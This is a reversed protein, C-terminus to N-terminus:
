KAAAAALTPFEDEFNGFAFTNGHNEIYDLVEEMENLIEDEISGRLVNEIEELFDDETEGPEMDPDLEFKEVFRQWELNALQMNVQTEESPPPPANQAEFNVYPKTTVARLWWHWTKPPEYVIQVQEGSILKQMIDQNFWESVYIYATNFYKGTTENQNEELEIDIITAIGLQNQLVDHIRSVTINPFVFPICVISLKSQSM